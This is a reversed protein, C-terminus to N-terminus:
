EQFCLSQSVQGNGIDGDIGFAALEFAFPITMDRIDTRRVTQMEVVESVRQWERYIRDRPQPPIRM